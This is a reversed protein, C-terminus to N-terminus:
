SRPCPHVSRCLGGAAPSPCPRTPSAVTAASRTPPHGAAAAAQRAAGLVAPSYPDTEGFRENDPGAYIHQSMLDVGAQQQATIALFQALTDRAEPPPAANRYNDRRWTADPRAM